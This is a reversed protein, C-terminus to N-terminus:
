FYYKQLNNVNWPQPVVVGNLDGLRYAGIRAVFTVRYPGEWNPGLKGWSPNKMSEVVRRLVLDGPIFIRVKIGKDFVQRLKQQYQTLIVTVIERREKALDLDLSLLQDNSGRLLQSSRLTPFGTETPIVVESGYTMSSRRPTIRYTWLVHPLEDVWKGKAEELRKKLGDLIVKNTAKASGNSQLYLPTSYKNKIGLDCCHKQFAKSDFQLGNDLILTNPVGFRTM